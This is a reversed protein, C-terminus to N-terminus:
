GPFQGSLFFDEGGGSTLFVVAFVKDSLMCLEGLSSHTNGSSKVLERSLQAHSTPVRAGYNGLCCRLFRMLSSALAFGFRMPDGSANSCLDGHRCESCAYSGLARDAVCRSGRTYIVHMCPCSSTRTGSRFCGMPAMLVM